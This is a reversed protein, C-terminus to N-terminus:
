RQGPWSVPAIRQSRRCTYPQTVAVQSPVGSSSEKLLQQIRLSRVFRIRQWVSAADKCVFAQSRVVSAQEPNVNPFSQGKGKLCVEAPM